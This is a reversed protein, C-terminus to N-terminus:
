RARVTSFLKTRQLDIGGNCVPCRTNYWVTLHHASMAYEHAQSSSRPRRRVESQCADDDAILRKQSRHRSSSGMRMSVELIQIEFLRSVGECDRPPDRGLQHRFCTGRAHLPRLSHRTGVAGMTRTCCFARPLVVPVPPDDPRGQAVTQRSIRSRGPSRAQNGGDDALRTLTKSVKLAQMPAGPGCSKASRTMDSTAQCAAGM